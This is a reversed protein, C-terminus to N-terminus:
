KVHPRGSGMGVVWVLGAMLIAFVVIGWVITPITPGASATELLTMIM